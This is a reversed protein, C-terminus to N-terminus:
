KAIRRYREEEEQENDQLLKQVTCACQQRFEIPMQIEVAMVMLLSLWSICLASLCLFVQKADFHLTRAQQPFGRACPLQLTALIAYVLM